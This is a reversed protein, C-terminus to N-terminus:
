KTMWLSVATKGLGSVKFSPAPIEDLNLEAIMQESGLVSRTAVYFDNLELYVNSGLKKQVRLYDLYTRETMNMEKAKRFLPEALAYDGVNYHVTGLLTNALSLKGCLSNLLAYHPQLDLNGERQLAASYAVRTKPTLNGAKKFLHIASSNLGRNFQVLGELESDGERGSELFRFGQSAVNLDDVTLAALIYARVLSDNTGERLVEESYDTIAKRLYKIDGRAAEQKFTEMLAEDRAQRETRRKVPEDNIGKFFSEFFEFFDGKGFIGSKFYDKFEESEFFDDQHDVM